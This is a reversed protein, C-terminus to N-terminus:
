VVIIYVSKLCSDECKAAFSFHANQKIATFPLLTFFGTEKWSNRSTEKLELGEGDIVPSKLSM